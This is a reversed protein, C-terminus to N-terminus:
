AGKKSTIKEKAKVTKAGNPLLGRKKLDQAVDGLDYKKLTEETPIGTKVDWGRIAYYEDKMEEFKDRELTIGKLWGRSVARGFEKDPLTDDKRTIGERVDYARELARVRHAAEVLEDVTVERGLGASMARAQIEPHIADVLWVTHWKCSAVMDAITIDDGLSVVLKGKGEYKEPDAANRTGTRQLASQYSEERAEHREEESLRPDLAETIIRNETITDLDQILDGRRGVAYSLANAKYRPNIGYMPNNKVQMVWCKTSKGQRKSAPVATDLRQVVADIGDAIAAGFGDRNITKELMTLLADESGWEMAIGDTEKATIMGMEYLLMLWAFVRAVSVADIGAKQCLRTTKYWLLMDENRVGWNLQTYLECSLVTAGLGPVQYNEMCHIPCSFCGRKKYLYKDYFKRYDTKGAADFNSASKHEDGSMEWGSIVYTYETDAVGGGSLLPYWVNSKIMENAERCVELFKEPEAIKVGRTGRVAIAKLNKSGMVAGMGTRSAADGLSSQVTAYVVENEGALGVCVMM